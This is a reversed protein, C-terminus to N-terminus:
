LRKAELFQFPYWFVILAGFMNKSCANWFPTSLVLSPKVNYGIISYVLVVISWLQGFWITVCGVERSATLRTYFSQLSHRDWLNLCPSAAKQWILRDSKEYVLLCFLLAHHHCRPVSLLCDVCKKDRRRSITQEHMCSARFHSVKKQRQNLKKGRKVRFASTSAPPTRDFLALRRCFCPFM